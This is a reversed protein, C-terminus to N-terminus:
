LVELKPVNLSYRLEIGKSSNEGIQIRISKFNLTKIFRNTQM